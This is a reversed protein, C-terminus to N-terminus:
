KYQAGDLNEKIANTLKDQPLAGSQSGAVKKDKIFIFAPVGTVGFTHALEKEEEINFQGFLYKNSLEDAVAEYIPKNAICHGCWTAYAKLVLPKEEHEILNQITDSTVNVIETGLAVTTALCLFIFLQPSFKM